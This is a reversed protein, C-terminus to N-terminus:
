ENPDGNTFPNVIWGQAVNVDGDSYESALSHVERLPTRSDPEDDAEMVARASILMDEIPIPRSTEERRQQQSRVEALRAVQFLDAKNTDLSERWGPKKLLKASKGFLPTPKKFNFLLHPVSPHRKAEKKLALLMKMWRKLKLPSSTGHMARFELTGLKYVTHLNLASYKLEPRRISDIFARPREIYRLLNFLAMDQVEADKRRLCYLNGRRDEGCYNFLMDEYIWYLVIFNVIQQLTLDQVNVHIHVSTRITFTHNPCDTKLATNLAKIKRWTDEVGEPAEIVYEGGDGNLSGDPILHWGEVRPPTSLGEVEIEVGIADSCHPAIVARGFEFLHRALNM